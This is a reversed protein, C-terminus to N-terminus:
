ASQPPTDELAEKVDWLRSAFIVIGGAKEADKMFRIQDLSITGSEAKVEIFLPRQKWIGCIDPLGKRSYAHQKYTRANTTVWFFAHNLQLWQCIQTKIIQEPTPVIHNGM